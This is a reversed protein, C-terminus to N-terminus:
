GDNRSESTMLLLGTGPYFPTTMQGSLTLPHFFGLPHSEDSGPRGPEEGDAQYEKDETAKTNADGSIMM